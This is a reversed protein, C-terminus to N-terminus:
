PAVNDGEEGVAPFPAPEVRDLGNFRAPYRAALVRGHTRHRYVAYTGNHAVQPDELHQERTLLPACPVNADRFLALWHGTPATELVPELLELLRSLMAVRDPIRILEDKWEPHGVIALTQKLQRGSGPAIVLHGDATKVHDRRPRPRDDPADRDLYLSGEFLEPFSGYATADIMPLDVRVGTGTESRRVLAALIAQVAFMSTTKDAVYSRVFQPGDESGQHTAIGTWAQITQDFAAEDARPGTPGYGTIALRVLRPNRAAVVADDLELVRETAPRWNHLLVDAGDLLDLFTTRAAPAKLDLAVSQKNRNVSAALQGVSARPGTYARLPDGRQPEVKCVTAGLDALMLGAFPGALHTSADIVTHGALPAAGLSM